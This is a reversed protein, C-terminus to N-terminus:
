KRVKRKWNFKNLSPKPTGSEKKRANRRKRCRDRFIM